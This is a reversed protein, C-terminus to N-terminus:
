GEAPSWSMENADEGEIENTQTTAAHLEQSRHRKKEKDKRTKNALRSKARKETILNQSLFKLASWRPIRREFAELDTPDWLDSDDESSIDLALQIRNREHEEAKRIWPELHRIVFDRHQTVAFRHIQDVLCIFDFARSWEGVNGEWLTEVQQQNPSGQSDSLSISRV